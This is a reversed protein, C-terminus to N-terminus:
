DMISFRGALYQLRERMTYSSSSNHCHRLYQAAMERVCTWEEREWEEEMRKAEKETEWLCKYDLKLSGDLFWQAVENIMDERTPQEFSPKDLEFYEHLQSETIRLLCLGNYQTIIKITNYEKEYECFVIDTPMWPFSKKVRYRMELRSWYITPIDDRPFWVGV